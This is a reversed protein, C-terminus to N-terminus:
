LIKQQLAKYAEQTLKDESLTGDLIVVNKKNAFITDFGNIVKHMFNKYREEFVSSAGRKKMREIAISVDIHIYMIIKPQINQTVWSNITKIQELDVGRGYGQYALSSNGMRDCIVLKGNELAPIVVKEFHQARDAAFLLFETKASVNKDSEKLLTSIKEGFTTGGPQKTSIFDLNTKSLLNILNKLLTTKGCGDAGEITILVGKDKKM